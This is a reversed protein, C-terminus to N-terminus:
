RVPRFNGSIFNASMIPRSQRLKFYFICAVPSFSLIEAARALPAFFRYPCIIIRRSAAARLLGAWLFIPEKIKRRAPNALPLFIHRGALATSIKKANGKYPAYNIPSKKGLANRQATVRRGQPARNDSHNILNAV